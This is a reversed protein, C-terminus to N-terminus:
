PAAPCRADSVHLAVQAAANRGDYQASSALEQGTIRLCEHGSRTVVLSAVRDTLRYDATEGSPGVLCARGAPALTFRVPASTDSGEDDCDRSMVLRASSSLDIEVELPDSTDDVISLGSVHDCGTAVGLGMVALLSSVLPRARM